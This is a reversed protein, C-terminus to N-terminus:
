LHRILHIIAAVTLRDTSGLRASGLCQPRLCRHTADNGVAEEKKRRERMKWVDTQPTAAEQEDKCGGDRPRGRDSQPSNSQLYLILPPVTRSVPFLLSIGRAEKKRERQM